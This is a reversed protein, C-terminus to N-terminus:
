VLLPSFVTVCSVTPKKKGQNALELVQLDLQLHDLKGEQATLVMKLETKTSLLSEACGRWLM